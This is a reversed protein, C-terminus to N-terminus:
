LTKYILNEIIPPKKDIKYAEKVLAEAEKNDSNLYITGLVDGIDVKDGIKKNLIVGVGFDIKDTKVERGGGIIKCAKAINLADLESVYGEKDAKIEIQKKALNFLSYDNIVNPNGGQRKIITQLTKLADGNDIKEKILSMDDKYEDFCKKGENDEIEKM